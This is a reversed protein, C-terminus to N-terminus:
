GDRLFTFSSAALRTTAGLIIQIKFPIIDPEIGYSDGNFPLATILTGCYPGGDDIEIVDDWRVTGNEDSSLGRVGLSGLVDSVWIRFFRM